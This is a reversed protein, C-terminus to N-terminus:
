RKFTENSKGSNREYYTDLEYTDIEDIPEVPRVSDEYLWNQKELRPKRAHLYPQKKSLCVRTGHKCGGYCRVIM